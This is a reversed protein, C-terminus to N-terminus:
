FDMEIRTQFINLNGNPTRGSVHGFGYDCRWKLHSYLHWNVGAMLLSLRGGHIDASNLNVFSYRGVLEWAGWGGRGFDFAKRPIVRGFTGRTRDYPRSEGTLFWSASAYFGSFHAEVGTNNEVWSHLWEGQVCLPGNVWAAEAGLSLAGAADIDGTDVVYPALHSEPRTRYRVAHEDAYVASTSLGLHLLRQSNPDAPDRSFVPVGTVRGAARGFSTTAEGFDKGSGVGDTFLGLAWTMNQDFVPHGVQMGANVGPALAAVPAASEMFMMDRSSGYNALSMPVQFQGVKLPGLFRLFRLNPFELYSNEIYFTDPIYGVELEYFVPLLLLCDGKAYLRARRLELGGDFGAFNHGTAYAAGDVAFKAGVKGTLRAKALHFVHINTVEAIQQGLFTQRDVAFHLGDWGKWTASWELSKPPPNTPTASAPLANTVVVMREQAELRGLRETTPLADDAPSPTTTTKTEAAHIRLVPFLLALAFGILRKSRKSTM